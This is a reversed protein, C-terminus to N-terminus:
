FHFIFDAMYDLMADQFDMGAKFRSTGIHKGKWHNQSNEREESALISEHLDQKEKAVDLDEPQVPNLCPFLSFNEALLYPNEFKRM